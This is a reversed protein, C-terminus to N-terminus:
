VHINLFTRRASWLEREFKRGEWWERLKWFISVDKTGSDADKTGMARLAIRAEEYVNSAASWWEKPFISSM